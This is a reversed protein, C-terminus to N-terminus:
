RSKDGPQEHNLVQVDLPVAPDRVPSPGMVLQMNQLIHTRRRQWDAAEEIPHSQGKEDLWVMLDMKDSYFPPEGTHASAISLTLVALMVAFTRTM